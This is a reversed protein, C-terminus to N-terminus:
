NLNPVVKEVLGINQCFSSFELGLLTQVYDGVVEVEIHAPWVNVLFESMEKKVM